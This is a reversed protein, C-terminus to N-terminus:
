VHPAERGRPHRYSSKNNATTHKYPPDTLVVEMHIDEVEVYRNKM